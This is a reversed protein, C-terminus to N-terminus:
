SDSGVTHKVKFKNVNLKMKLKSVIDSPGTFGRQQEECCARDKSTMIM